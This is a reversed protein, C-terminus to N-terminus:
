RGIMQKVVTKVLSIWPMGVPNPVRSWRDVLVMLIFMVASIIALVIFGVQARIVGSLGLAVMLGAALILALWVGHVIKRIREEHERQKADTGGMAQVAHTEM